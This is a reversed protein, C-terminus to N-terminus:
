VMWITNTPDLYNQDPEPIIRIIQVQGFHNPGTWFSKSRDLIIQDQGFHNLGTWFSKLIDLIIQVQGFRSTRLWFQKSPGIKKPDMSLCPM